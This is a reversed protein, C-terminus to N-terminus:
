TLNQFDLVDFAEENLADANQNIKELERKERELQRRRRLYLWTAEEIDLALCLGWLIPTRAM